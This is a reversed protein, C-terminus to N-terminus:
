YKMSEIADVYTAVNCDYFGASDFLFPIRIEYYLDLDILDAKNIHREFFQILPYKSRNNISFVGLKFASSRDLNCRYSFNAGRDLLYDAMKYQSYLLAAMLATTGDRDIQNVDAGAEIFIQMCNFANNVICSMLLTIEREKISFDNTINPCKEIEKQLQKYNNKRILKVFRLRNSM